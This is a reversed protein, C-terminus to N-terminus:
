DMYVRLALAMKGNCRLGDGSKVKCSGFVAM